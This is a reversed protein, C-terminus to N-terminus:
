KDNSDVGRNFSDKVYITNRGSKINVSDGSQKNNGRADEVPPRQARWKFYAAVAGAIATIATALTLLIEFIDM